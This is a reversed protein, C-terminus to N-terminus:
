RSSRGPPPAGHVPGGQGRGREDGGGHRRAARRPAPRHRPRARARRAPAHTSADAQRFREFVHPLFEPDIGMGDDAVALRAQHDERDLVVRVAGGKPTFKIANSLLNWVVQQLRDPDGQLTGPDAIRTELGVGKADAAHRVSDLAGEIVSPLSVPRVELDLKGTVIRSVDLIDEILQTQARANRDITELARAATAPDLQGGRLLKTWGVIANLPTRLEHSLTALFEDKMRNAEQAERYLRANDSALAGRDAVSQALSLDKYSLRRDGAAGLVVAGIVNHHARLPVIMLSSLGVEDRLRRQDETEQPPRPPMPFLRAEGTRVVDVALRATGGEIEEDALRRLAEVREPDRHQAAVVSLRGGEGRAFVLGWDAVEPVALRVLAALVARDDFTSVLTSTVEALFAARRQEAEAEARAAQARILQAREDEAARRETVDQSSGIMRAPRGADDSAVTADTLVNRVTGDPRTIRFECSWPRGEELAGTVSRELEPRDGPHVAELFREYTPAFAGPERGFIHYTEESWTMGGSAVDWEWSGVHALRQAEALLLDSRKLNEEARRREQLEHQLDRTREEVRRELDRRAELLAADREQIRSLMENFTNILEGVENGGGGPVRLSYDEHRSVRRATDALRLLPDSIAAQVRSSLALALVFSLLSVLVVIGLYRGLRYWIEGLDSQIVVTGAIRREFAIPRYLLLADRTFEHGSAAPPRPPLPAGPAREYTAFRRGQDDYIAASVVHPEAALADITNNAVQQDQFVLASAANAAIIDADTALRRVLSERFAVVDYVAFGFAASLLAVSSALVAVRMLQQRIALDRFPRMRNEAPLPRALKLLEAM